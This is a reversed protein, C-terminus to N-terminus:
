RIIFQVYQLAIFPIIFSSHTINIDHLRLKHMTSPIVCMPMLAGLRTWPPELWSWTLTQGTSSLSIQRLPM